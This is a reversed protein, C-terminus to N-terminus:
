FTFSTKTVFRDRSDFVLVVVKPTKLERLQSSTLYWQTPDSSAHIIAGDAKFYVKLDPDYSKLFLRVASAGRLEFKSKFPKYSYSPEKGDAGIFYPSGVSSQYRELMQAPATLQYNNLRRDIKAEAEINNKDYWNVMKVRPFKTPLSSYLQAMKTTGFNLFSEKSASSEQSAAWEGIAIPKRAAYKDYVYKLHETPHIRAGSRSVDNDLFPVSYFNVGVWDVYDDGPYYADIDRVPVANPCWLLAVKPARRTEKHVLRFAKKYAEPDGNYATWAGNMESAFRLIVPHDLSEAADVFRRLYDPDDHVQRLDSPEWAINVIAGHKKLYRGWKLPFPQGYSRYMFFSAHDKKVLNNFQAVDGYFQSELMHRQISYDRDIFAGVYCGAAPELRELKDPRPAPITRHLSLETTYQAAKGEEVIAAQTDGSHRYIKAEEAYARAATAFDELEVALEAAQRWGPGSPYSEAERLLRSLKPDDSAAAKAPGPLSLALNSKASPMLSPAPAATREIAVPPAPAPPRELPLPKPTELPAPPDPLPAPKREVVAPKPAAFPSEGIAASAEQFSSDSQESPPAFPSDSSYEGAQAPETVQSPTASTTPAPKEGGCALCGLLSLGLVGKMISRFVKM